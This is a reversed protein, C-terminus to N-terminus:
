IVHQPGVCRSGFPFCLIGEAVIDGTNVYQTKSTDNMLIIYIEGNYAWNFQGWHNLVRMTHSRHTKSDVVVFFMRGTIQIQWGTLIHAADGPYVTKDVSSLLLISSDSSTLIKQSEPHTIRVEGLGLQCTTTIM